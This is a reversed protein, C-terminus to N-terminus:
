GTRLHPALSVATGTHARPARLVRELANMATADLKTGSLPQMMELVASVSQSPKYPREELLSCFVDAVRLVRALAPVQEGVLGLPYGSGDPAEHHARVAEAIREIGHLPQLIEAAIEPHREVARREPENLAGPKLLVDSSVGLKGIDHVLGALRLTEVDDASFRLERALEAALAGVREGHQRTAADHAGLAASLSALADLTSRRQAARERETAWRQRARRRDALVGGVVGVTWALAPLALREGRSLSLPGDMRSAVATALTLLAGVMVGGVLGHREVVVAAGVLVGAVLLLLVGHRPHAGPALSM